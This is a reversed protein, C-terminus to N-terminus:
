PVSCLTLLAFITRRMFTKLIQRESTPVTDRFLHKELRQAEHRRSRNARTASLMNNTLCFERMAYSRKDRFPLTRATHQAAHLIIHPGTKLVEDLSNSVVNM